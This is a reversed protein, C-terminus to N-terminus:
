ELGDFNRRLQAGFKRSTACKLVCQNGSFNGFKRSTTSSAGGITLGRNDMRSGRGLVERSWRRRNEFFKGYISVQLIRLHGLAEKSWRRSNELFRAYITLSGRPHACNRQRVEKKQWKPNTACAAPTGGPPEKQKVLQRAARYKTRRVGVGVVSLQWQCSVM